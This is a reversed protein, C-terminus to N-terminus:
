KITGDIKEADRGEFNRCLAWTILDGDDWDETLPSGYLRLAEIVYEKLLQCDGTNYIKKFNTRFDIIAKSSIQLTLFTAFFFTKNPIINVESVRDDGFWFIWFSGYRPKMKGIELNDM